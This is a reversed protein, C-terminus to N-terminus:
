LCLRRWFSIGLVFVGFFIGAVATITVMSRTLQGVALFVQAAMAASFVIGGLLILLLLLWRIWSTSRATLVNLERNSDGNNERLWGVSWFAKEVWINAISMVLVGALVWWVNTVRLSTLAATLALIVGDIVFIFLGMTMIIFSLSLALLFRRLTVTLLTFVLAAIWTSFLQREKMGWGALVLLSSLVIYNISLRMVFNRAQRMM